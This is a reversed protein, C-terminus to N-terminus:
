IYCCWFLTSVDCKRATDKFGFETLIGDIEEQSIFNQLLAFIKTNKAM